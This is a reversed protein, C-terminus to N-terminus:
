QEIGSLTQYAARKYIYEFTLLSFWFDALHLYQLWSTVTYLQEKM